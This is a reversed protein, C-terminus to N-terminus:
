RRRRAGLVGLVVAIAAWAAEAGAGTGGPVSCRCGGGGAFQIGPPASPGADFEERGADFPEQGADEDDGGADHEAGADAAGADDNTSTGADSDSPVGPVCEGEGLRVTGCREIASDSCPEPDRGNPCGDEDCDGALWSSTPRGDPTRHCDLVDESTLETSGACYDLGIAPYACVGSTFGEPPNVAGVCVGERALLAPCDESVDCGFLTGCLPRCVLGEVGPLIQDCLGPEFRADPCTFTGACAILDCEVLPTAGTAGTVTCVLPEAQAVMPVGLVGLVVLM